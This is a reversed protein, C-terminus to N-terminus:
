SDEKTKPRYKNVMDHFVEVKKMGSKDVKDIFTQYDKSHVAILQYVVKESKVKRPRGVKAM